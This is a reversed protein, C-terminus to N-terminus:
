FILNSLWKRVQEKTISNAEKGSTKADVGLIELNKRRTLDEVQDDGIKGVFFYKSEPHFFYFGSISSAPTMAFNETLKVGTAVEAKLVNWIKTKESHDPCAPYGPAPRIGQYKEAILDESSLSENLGVFERMKKHTLEALAEAIRDGLVKVMLSNYDDNQKELELSYKEVGSGATTVFAGFCDKKGSSKPAVFDSLCRYLGGVAEKERQQRLFCFREITKGESNYIEVDDEDVQNASWLGVTVKPEFRKEKVIKELLAKGDSLLKTAENGYKPHKLVGPYLGKLDWAWFFPSWDILPVIEDLSFKWEFVGMQKPQVPKFQDWNAKFKRNRAERLPLIQIEQRNALHDERIRDYMVRMESAYKVREAPNMVKSMVETVLSADPVHIVPSEYHEAIKVATHLKSTTAGGILIPIKFGEKQFEKVNYIMEDLSPTILGSLGIADVDLEQAKKLIEHCPVMVGMDFVEYGNCALVVSVINKGIDHVDGKVTALLVKGQSKAKGKEKLMYPELVAVAKKMVRASKVVQPLFMKGQGFLEGVVKMGNMMPGEIVLLPSKFHELAEMTDQEVFDDIGKLLAHTFRDQLSLERWKQGEEKEVKNVSKFKEALKLLHDTAMPNRNLIVDEVAGRLEPNIEEFVELMGANVIAMDLGAKIAHHLFVSHMAERVTDNGRFSFSLNSLGGSTLVGPCLKKVQRIAEIFNIAYANHEEMGTAIALINVDFILDVPNLGLEEVWIRYARQCIRIKDEVTAAQGKEDFAMVVAAAGYKSILEAHKKFEEPGEKLSISNVIAKGQVCKLGAEIVEWKSSDIMFPVKAIEPEGAMLNLFHVMETKSDLMGDDMNIDIVNAGNDVQGRAIVLADSYRKEKIAKCFRISGAVNTREGIFVFPKEGSAPLNFAEMGSVSFAPPVNPIKRPKMDKLQSFIGKIHAPTTGCCGGVINVLGDDAYHALEGAIMEPTEDYGTPALPNPLGANPYCSIYCDAIRSLESLFPRMEKAGLACNMGVSLPKSHKISNWFAATNQGSLTRGSLDTITVSIMLPPRQGLRQEIRQIAFLSAKLNLTDFTTEPLLIDAGGALLGLAQEEYADALEDFTSARYAPDNVDPSLSLTRNTPGLAGAVYTKRGTRKEFDLCEKKAISAAAKNIEFALSELGYEKQAISTGNFTNTEIIDAGAELYQRHVEAIVEPKTLCLIDNNGKLDKSHGAFRSGRYDAEELKYQQIMTGMAGDMFVMRKSFLSDLEKWLESKPLHM